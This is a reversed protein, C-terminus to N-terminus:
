RDDIMMRTKLWRGLFDYMVFEQLRHKSRFARNSSMHILNPLLNSQILEERASFSDILQSSIPYTAERRTDLLEVLTLDRRESDMWRDIERSYHRYKRDLQSKLERNEHFETALGNRMRLLIEHIEADMLRFDQFLHFASIMALIWRQEEWEMKQIQDLCGLWFVSDAEFWTEAMAIREEGYRDIEPIYTGVEWKWIRRADLFSCLTHQIEPLFTGVEWPHSFQIRIRLHFDPDLFRVFHWSVLKGDARLRDLLGPLSAVLWEEVAMVSGYLRCYCWEEGHYFIRKM